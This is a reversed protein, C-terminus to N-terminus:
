AQRRHQRREVLRREAARARARDRLVLALLVGALLLVMGFVVWVIQGAFPPAEARIPRADAFVILPVRRWNGEGRANLESDEYAWMQQFWGRFEWASEVEEWAFRGPTRVLIPYEGYNSNRLWGESLFQARVPNEDVVRRSGHFVVGGVRVAAGRYAEPTENFKALLAASLWPAEAFTTELAVPDERLTLAVNALHWTADMDPASEVQMPPDQVSALRALDPRQAPEARPVSVRVTGGILLPLVRREAGVPLSHRKLFYGDAVVWDGPAFRRSPEIVSVHVAEGVGDDSRLVTWYEPAAGSRTRLGAEIVVGRMRFLSGRLEHARAEADAFPFAPEGLRQLISPLLMRANEALHAFAEPELAVQEALTGDRVTALLAQDVTPLALSAVDSPADQVEPPTPESRTFELAVFLVLAFAGTGVVAILRRRDRAALDRHAKQLAERRSM